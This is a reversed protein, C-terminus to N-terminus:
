RKQKNGKIVEFFFKKSFPCTVYNKWSFFIRATARRAHMDFNSWHKDLRTDMDTILPIWPIGLKQQTRYAGYTFYIPINYTLILDPREVDVIQNIKHHYLFKLYLSRLFLINLHGFVVGPIKEPLANTDGASWLAGKPFLQAPIHTLVHVKVGSDIFERILSEQWKCAAPSVAPLFYCSENLVPGIWLIKKITKPHRVSYNHQYDM